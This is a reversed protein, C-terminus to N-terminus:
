RLAEAIRRLREPWGSHASHASLAAEARAVVRVWAAAREPNLTIDATPWYRLWRQALDRLADQV